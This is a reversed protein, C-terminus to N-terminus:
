HLPIQTRSLRKSLTLVLGAGGVLGAFEEGGGSEIGVNLDSPRGM